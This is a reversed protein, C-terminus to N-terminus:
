IRPRSGRLLYLYTVLGGTICGIWLIAVTYYWVTLLGPTGKSGLQAVVYATIGAISLTTIILNVGMRLLRSKARILWGVSAWLFFMPPLYFLGMSTLVGMAANFDHLLIVYAIASLIVGIGMTGAAETLPTPSFRM